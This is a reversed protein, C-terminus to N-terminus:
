ELEGGDNYKKIPLGDSFPAYECPADNRYFGCTTSCFRLIMFCLMVSSDVSHCIFYHLSM